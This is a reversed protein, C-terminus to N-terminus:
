GHQPSTPLSANDRHVPLAPNGAWLMPNRSSWRRDGPPLRHGQTQRPNAGPGSAAFTIVRGGEDGHLETAGDHEDEEQLQGHGHQGEEELVPHPVPEPLEELAVDSGVPVVNVQLVENVGQLFSYAGGM